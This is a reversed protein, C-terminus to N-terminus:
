DEHEEPTDNGNKIINIFANDITRMITKKLSENEAELQHIKNKAKCTRFCAFGLEIITVILLAIRIADSQKCEDTQTIIYKEYEM